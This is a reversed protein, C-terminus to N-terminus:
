KGQVHSIRCDTILRCKKGEDFAEVVIECLLIAGDIPVSEDADGHQGIGSGLFVYGLEFAALAHSQFSRPETSKGAPLTVGRRLVITEPGSSEIQLHRDNHM